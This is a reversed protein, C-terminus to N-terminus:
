VMEHPHIKIAIFSKVFLGFIKEKKIECDVFFESFEHFSLLRIERALKKADAASPRAIWGWITFNRALKERLNLPLFQFFPTLFHPEIFFSRAPTQVWISKGVRIIEQAFARQKDISSLHEIVSNSFVIDFHSEKYQLNTGDGHVYQINGPLDAITNPLQINLLTIRAPCDVLLWNSLTGGVDLITTTEDINFRHLFEQMRKKRFWISFRNPYILKRSLVM